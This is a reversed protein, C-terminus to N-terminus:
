FRAPGENSIPSLEPGFKYIKLVDILQAISNGNPIPTVQCWPNHRDVGVDIKARSQQQLKLQRNQELISWLRWICGL